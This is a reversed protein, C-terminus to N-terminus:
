VFELQVLRDCSDRGDAEVHFSDRVLVDLEINPHSDKRAGDGM